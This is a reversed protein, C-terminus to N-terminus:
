FRQTIKIMFIRGCHPIDIGYNEYGPDICKYDFLNRLSISFDTEKKAILKINRTSITLNTLFCAGIKFNSADSFTTTYELGAPKPSIREGVYLNQLNINLYEVPIYNLGLNATIEPVLTTKLDTD